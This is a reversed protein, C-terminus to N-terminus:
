TALIENQGSPTHPSWAVTCVSNQHGRLVLVQGISGSEVNWIRATKDDSCSALRTSLKNSKIQNIEDSHGRHFNTEIFVWFQVDFTSCVWANACAHICRTAHYSYAQRGWLERVYFWGVLWHGFLLRSFINSEDFILSGVFAFGEHCSYQKTMTKSEVDWVCVTGDLGATLLWRGSPSFRTAFIPVKFYLILPPTPLCLRFEWLMNRILWTCNGKPQVFVSNLTTLDLQLCHAKLIGISRPWIAITRRQYFPSPVPHLHNAMRRHLCIGSVYLQMRPVSNM